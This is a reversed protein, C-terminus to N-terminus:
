DMALTAGMPKIINMSFSNLTTFCGQGVQPILIGLNVRTVLLTSQTTVGLLKVKIQSIQHRNRDQNSVKVWWRTRPSHRRGLSSHTRISVITNEEKIAGVGVAMAQRLTIAGTRSLFVQVQSRTVIIKNRIQQSRPLTLSRVNTILSRKTPAIRCLSTRAGVARAWKSLSGRRKYTTTKVGKRIQNQYLPNPPKLISHRLKVRRLIWKSRPVLAQRIIWPIRRWVLILLRQHNEVQPLHLV